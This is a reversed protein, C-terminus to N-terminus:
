WVVGCEPCEGSNDEEDTLGVGCADCYLDFAPEDSEESWEGYTEDAMSEDALWPWLANEQAIQEANEDNNWSM